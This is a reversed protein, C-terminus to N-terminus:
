SVLIMDSLTWEIDFLACTQPATVLIHWCWNWINIVCICHLFLSSVFNFLSNVNKLSIINKYCFQVNLINIFFFLFIYMISAFVRIYIQYFVWYSFTALIMYVSNTDSIFQKRRDRQKETQSFELSKITRIPFGPMM